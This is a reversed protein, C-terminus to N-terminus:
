YMQTSIPKTPEAVKCQYKKVAEAIKQDFKVQYKFAEELEDRRDLLDATAGYVIAMHYEPPVLSVDGDASLAVATRRFDVRLNCNAAANPYPFINFRNPQIIIVKRPYDGTDDRLDYDDLYREHIPTLVRKDRPGPDAAGALDLRRVETILLCIDANDSTSEIFYERVGESNADRNFKIDNSALRQYIPTANYTPSVEFEAADKICPAGDVFLGQAINLAEKKVAVSFKGHAPDRIFNNLYTQMASFLM